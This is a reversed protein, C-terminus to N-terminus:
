WEGTPASSRYTKRLRVAVFIFAGLIMVAMIPVAWLKVRAVRSSSLIRGDLANFVFSNGDTTSVTYTLRADDFYEDASWNLRSESRPLLLKFDILDSVKYTRCLKGDAFFSFAEDEATEAGPGRRVLHVGDSAVEVDYAYWNVTWLPEATGDNPYLGSRPYKARIAQIEASKAANWRNSEGQVAGPAIMVFLLQGNPSAKTYSFPPVISDARLTVAFTLFRVAWATVPLSHPYRVHMM